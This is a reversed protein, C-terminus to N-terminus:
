DNELIETIVYIPLFWLLLILLVDSDSSTLNFYTYNICIILIVISWMVDLIITIAKM